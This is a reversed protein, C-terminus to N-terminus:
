NDKLEHYKTKLYLRNERPIKYNKDLFFDVLLLCNKPLWDTWAVSKKRKPGYLQPKWESYWSGKWYHIFQEEKIDLVKGIIPIKKYNEIRVAVFM